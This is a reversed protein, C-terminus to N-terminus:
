NLLNLLASATSNEIDQITLKIQEARAGSLVPETNEMYKVVVQENTIPRSHAGRNIAERHSHISGDKMEVVVEGSFYRPFDADPDAVCQVKAALALSTPDTYAKENLAALDFRGYQLCRAVSYPISFQAEYSNAPKKKAADPECVTKMVGEPVKAVIQKIDDINITQHLISAADACAHVFHCAPIPKVAINLTEWSEGISAMADNMNHTEVEAGLHSRYLGFRGEYTAKPGVFGHKAMTVATIAAQAAWGPHARKTWAGDQLFEMSGSAMSLVIGQAHNLQDATLQQLRGAAVTCAFAGVLGTPHFGVQHFAGKAVSGLRTAVELGLVYATLIDQGTCGLVAGQSLVAPLLSATAHIIGEPHTDDYDLGHILVGNIVAADRMSLSVGMGIVPVQQVSGSLEQFALLTKKAFDYQTSAFAIGVADLMLHKARTRVQEPIDNFALSLAKNSITHSVYQTDLTSNEAHM